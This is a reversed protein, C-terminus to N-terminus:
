CGGHLHEDINHTKNTANDSYQAFGALVQVPVIFINSYFISVRISAFVIVKSLHTGIMDALSDSYESELMDVVGQDTLRFNLYENESDAYM